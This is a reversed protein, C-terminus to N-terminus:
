TPDITRRLTLTPTNEIGNQGAIRQFRLAQSGTPVVSFAGMEFLGQFDLTLPSNGLRPQIIDRGLTLIRNPASDFFELSIDFADYATKQHDIYNPFQQTSARLTSSPRGITRTIAIDETLDVTNTNRSIQVPGSGSTTPTSAAQNATGRVAGVRTLTLEVDVVDRRGPSYTLSLAEEQEAAPAVTVPSTPYADLDTGSVSLTLEEGDGTRSKILRALTLADSYASSGTLQTVINYNELGSRSDQFRINLEGHEYVNLEPKGIDVSFAPNGSEQLVPFTLSDGLGDHSLTVDM